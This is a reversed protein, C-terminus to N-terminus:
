VYYNAIIDRNERIVRSNDYAANGLPVGYLPETASSYLPVCIPTGNASTVSWVATHKGAYPGTQITYARAYSPIYSLFRPDTDNLNEQTAGFLHGIEHTSTLGLFSPSLIQGSESVGMIWSYKAVQTMNIKNYYFGYSGGAINHPYNTCHDIHYGGVYLVIDAYGMKSPPYVARVLELPNTTKMSSNTFESSRSGNVIPNIVVKIDNKFYAMHLYNCINYLRSQWNSDLAKFQDDTVVLLNVYQYTDVSTQIVNSSTTQSVSSFAKGSNEAPTKFTLKADLEDPLTIYGRGIPKEPYIVDNANYLFQLPSQINKGSETQPVYDIIYTENGLTISGLLVTDSITFLIESDKIERLTGDYCEIGADNEAFDVRSLEASYNKGGLSITIGKGAKLQEKLLKSKVTVFNYKKIQSSIKLEDTKQVGYSDLESKSAVNKVVLYTIDKTESRIQMHNSSNQDISVDQASVFPAIVMM